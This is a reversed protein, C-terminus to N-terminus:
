SPHYKRKLFDVGITEYTSFRISRLRPFEVDGLWQSFKHFYPVETLIESQARIADADQKTAMASFDNVTQLFM